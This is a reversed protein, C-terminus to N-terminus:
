NSFRDKAVIKERGGSVSIGSDLLRSIDKDIVGAEIARCNTRIGVGSGQSYVPYAKCSEPRKEYFDCLNNKGISPCPELKIYFEKDDGADNRYLREDDIEGLLHVGFIGLAEEESVDITLGSKCCTSNCEDVCYTNVKGRMEEMLAPLGESLYEKSM